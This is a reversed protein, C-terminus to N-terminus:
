IFFYTFYKIHIFDKIQNTAIINAIEEPDDPDHNHTKKSFKIPKNDLDTHLRAKCHRNNKSFSEYNCRWYIKSQHKKEFIYEYDGCILLPKNKTTKTLIIKQSCLDLDSLIQGTNNAFCEEDSSDVLENVNYVKKLCTM